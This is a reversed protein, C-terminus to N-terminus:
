GPIVLWPERTGAGIPRSRCWVAPPPRSNPRRHVEPQARRRWEFEREGNTPVAPVVQRGVLPVRFGMPETRHDIEAGRNDLYGRFLGSVAM